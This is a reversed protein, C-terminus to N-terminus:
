HIISISSSTATIQRASVNSYYVNGALGGLFFGGGSNVNFGASVTTTASNLRRYWYFTAYQSKPLGNCNAVPPVPLNSQSMDVMDAFYYQYKGAAAPLHPLAATLLPGQHSQIPVVVYVAMVGPATSTAAPVRAGTDAGFTVNSAVTTENGSGPVAAPSVYQPTVASSTAGNVTTVTGNILAPGYNTPGETRLNGFCEWKSVQGRVHRIYPFSAGTIPCAYPEIINNADACWDSTANFTSWYNRDFTSGDVSYSGSGEAAWM